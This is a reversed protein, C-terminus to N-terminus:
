VFKQVNFSMTSIRSTITKQSDHVSDVTTTIKLRDACELLFTMYFEVISKWMLFINEFRFRFRSRRKPTFLVNQVMM